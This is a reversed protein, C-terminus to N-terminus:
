PGSLRFSGRQQLRFHVQLSYVIPQFALRFRRETGFISPMSQLCHKVAEHRAAIPQAHEPV